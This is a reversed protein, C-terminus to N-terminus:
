TFESFWFIYAFLGLGVWSEPASLFVCLSEWETFESEGWKVDTLLTVPAVAGKQMHIFLNVICCNFHAAHIEVPDFILHNWRGVRESEMEFYVRM